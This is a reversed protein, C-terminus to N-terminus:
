KLLMVKTVSSFGGANMRVLYIGASIASADWNMTHQGASLTGNVIETVLRGSIDFIGIEVESAEPLGFSLRTQNNFPNPYCEALYYDSPIHTNANMELVLFDNDSYVLGKGELISAVDLRTEFAESADGYRLEFAEGQLLGNPQDTLDDDGWVALGCRGFADIQGAGVKIGNSNYAIVWDNEVPSLGELRTVLVSMNTNTPQINGDTPDTTNEEPLNVRNDEEPYNFICDDIVNILYGQSERWDVMNSFEWATSLFQGRGNKALRVNDIIPALVPFNPARASLRYTPFYSIINWGVAIPIDADFPIPEGAWITEIEEIVNVFYGQNLDWYPINNFEWTPSFFRGREDKLLRINHNDEDIRLQETMLIVDPGREEGEAYMEEGPSVNISILNWGARFAVDLDREEPEAEPPLNHFGFGERPLEVLDLEDVNLLDIDVWHYIVPCNTVVGEEQISGGADTDLVYMMHIAGDDVLPSASVWDESMCEGPEPADDGEWITETVNVPVHWTRGFDTSASIMIEKNVYGSESTDQANEHFNWDEGNEDISMIPRSWEWVVYINGPVEPDFVISGRDANLRWVGPRFNGAANPNDMYNNYWGDYILTIEDTESSWFWLHGNVAYAFVPEDADGGLPHEKFGSAAFVGYLNDGDEWPDFEIDVDCYPRLTDGWARIPDDELLDANPLVIQTMSEIGDDWDWNEGDESIIYRIDNNRQWAGRFEDWFRDVEGVLNHHWTIAVRESQPSAAVVSSIVGTIDIEIPQNNWEWDLFDRDPVGRSYAVRQWLQDEPASETSTVHAVNQFDITGHPWALEVGEWIPPYSATFAGIGLMWDSSLASGLINPEDEIHGTVHYFVIARDDEPLFSVTGYGSRDHGDVVLPDRPNELLRGDPDLYNYVLHRPNQNANFGCMYVFHTGDNNDRVIMQGISGNHQYDYWTFGIEMTEGLDRGPQRNPQNYSVGNIPFDAHPNVIKAPTSSTRMMSMRDKAERATTSQLSCVFILVFLAVTIKRFM